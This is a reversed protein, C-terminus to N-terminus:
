HKAAFRLDVITGGDEASGIPVLTAIMETGPPVGADADVLLTRVVPGDELAIKGITFPAPRGKDAHLHVTASAMLTGRGSLALAQLADDGSGCRECGYAQMPFFVYGCACRGGRLSPADPVAATGTPGYLDPKLM